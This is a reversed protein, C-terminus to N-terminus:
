FIDCYYDHHHVLHDGCPRQHWTLQACIQIIIMSWSLRDHDDHDCNEYHDHHDDGDWDEDGGFDDNDGDGPPPTLALLTSPPNSGLNSVPCLSRAAVEPCTRMLIMIVIVINIIKIIIVVIIIIVVVVLYLVSSSEIATPM